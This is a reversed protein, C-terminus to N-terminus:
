LPPRPGPFPFFGGTIISLNIEVASWLAADTELWFVDESEADYTIGASMM